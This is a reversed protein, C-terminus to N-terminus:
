LISCCCKKSSVSPIADLNNEDNSEFYDEYDSTSYILQSESTLEIMRIKGTFLERIKEPLKVLSTYITTELFGYGGSPELLFFNVWILNSNNLCSEEEYPILSFVLNQIYFNEYGVTIQEELLYDANRIGIRLLSNKSAKDVYLAPDCLNGPYLEYAKPTKSLITIYINQSDVQAYIRM